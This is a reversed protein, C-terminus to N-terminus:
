YFLNRAAPHALHMRLRSGHSELTFTHAKGQRPRHRTFILGCPHWFDTCFPLHAGHPLQADLCRATQTGRGGAGM